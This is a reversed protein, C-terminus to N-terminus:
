YIVDYTAWKFCRMISTGNELTGHFYKQGKVLRVVALCANGYSDMVWVKAKNQPMQNESKIWDM